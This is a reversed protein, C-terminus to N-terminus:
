AGRPGGPGDSLLLDGYFFGEREDWMSAGDHGLYERVQDPRQRKKQFLEGGKADEVRALELIHDSLLPVPVSQTWEQFQSKPDQIEFLVTSRAAELVPRM